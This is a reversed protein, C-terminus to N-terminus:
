GIPPRIPHPLAPSSHGLSLPRVGQGHDLHAPSMVAHLPPVQVSQVCICTCSASECCDPGGHRPPEPTPDVAPSTHTTGIAQHCPTEVAAEEIAQGTGPAAHHSMQMGTAAFAGMAGNLVLAVGLVMRLLLSWVSM